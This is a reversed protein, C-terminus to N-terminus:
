KAPYNEDKLSGAKCRPCANLNHGAPNTEVSLTGGTYGCEPCVKISACAALFWILFIAFFLVVSRM